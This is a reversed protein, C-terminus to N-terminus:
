EPRERFYSCCKLARKPGKLM